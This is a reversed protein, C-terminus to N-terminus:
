KVFSERKNKMMAFPCQLLVDRLWGLEVRAKEQVDAGACGRGVVGLEDHSNVVRRTLREAGVNTQRNLSLGEADPVECAVLDHVLHYRDWFLDLLNRTAEALCRVLQDELSDLDSRKAELREVDVLTSGIELSVLAVM